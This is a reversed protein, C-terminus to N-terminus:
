PWVPRKSSRIIDDCETCKNLRGRTTVVVLPNKVAEIAVKAATKAKERSQRCKTCETMNVSLYIFGM